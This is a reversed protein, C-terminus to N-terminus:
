QKGDVTDTGNMDSPLKIGPGVLTVNLGSLNGPGSLGGTQISASSAGSAHAPAAGRDEAGRAPSVQMVSANAIANTVAQQTTTSDTISPPIDATTATIDATTTAQDTIAYNGTDAGLYHSTLTVTKGTGANKNDFVGTASVAVADGNILGAYAAASTDVTAATTGDYAKNAAAIGSIVLAKPTVHAAATQGGALSYNSALGTGDALSLSNVTVLNATAVDKTNFTASATASVTEGGVLGSDISLSAIAATSGDYTKDSAHLTATLVAKNITSTTNDAYVVNYNGGGNGDTLTVSSTTVTKNSGANKDTFAFSGGSLADTGFLTGSTVTATGAATLGGDYTKTVDSTALTLDAKTVSVASGTTSLVNYNGSLGGNSGTGLALGTVSALTSSAQVNKNALNTTDGAGTVAFTEGTVGTATLVSGAVASSGDYTRTGSLALDAKTVSVASGTTSLVNYNGSLGGNGSTGLTLGAISALTSSAQVDKSALNGTNGAGTVAFTEGAVGTATLVSGAVASTGDYARTGSLTLNAKNITLTGTGSIDYGQQNSYLAAYTGVNTENAAFVNGPVVSVSGHATGDYTAIVDPVNLTLATLFQTLLPASHGEYIRWSAGSSGTSAITNPTATNWSSFSSLQMMQQSTLGTGGVSAAQGTTQIDWFSNTVAGYNNGMLGGANSVGQVSGTAYSNSVGGDYNFGVLGGVFSAGSVAGTAYSNSISNHYNMGVLGGVYNSGNVSGSVSGSAYSNSISGYNLGVLGGVRNEGGQVTGTAYDNSVVGENLGVLGGVTGGSATVGGAAHSGNTTGTSTNHGVLGGVYGRGQVATSAYSNTITGDNKGALAGVFDRGVVSGGVLGVNQVSGSADIHGFLGAEDASATLSVGSLGSDPMNINLAGITHGAGNLTGTFRASDKGVPVFTGSSWVNNVTGTAAADINQGLTYNGALNMSMLQLQHANNITTSYESALMPRTGGASNLTGDIGVMVWNNGTAGPTTTFNFGTFNSATQMQVSSLGTGASSTAQGSTTTDWFSNSATALGGDGGISDGGGVVGNVNKGILGGVFSSGSVAGAAYSHNIIAAGGPGGASPSGGYLFGDGGAGGVNGGVLGGVASSGSVAGSAYSNDITASSGATGDSGYSSAGGTSGTNVGVLGGVYGGGTVAGTAYSNAISASNNTGVLGGINNGSGTVAGTAYSNSINSSNNSGVLGGVNSGGTVVGTAYSNNISSSNNSGVLGGVNSGGTVVGTAYSNSVTNANNGVLGGVHDNGSVAGTSYSNAVSGVSNNGVLGGIYDTGTATGTAYSATVHGWNIGMLGGVSGVPSSVNGTAYSNNVSGGGAGWSLGVLGGAEGNGYAIVNGTAHSDTIAGGDIVGVLGGVTQFGSVSGTAYSNSLTGGLAGVLSGTGWSNSTVSGGVLGVNRVMSGVATYGFLGTTSSGTQNIYLGSVTHGLGDFSGTFKTTGTGIPVFGAGANWGSTTSADINSGLAYNLAKNGNMGQLDTATTSGAAGLNTIVTYAKVSGNSGQKTTFNTTSAPLNVAGGNSIINSTNGSAVAGQGFLLALSATSSANLNANININDQANLTLKNASWSVVDNVNVDGSTGSSGSSSLITVNTSGLNASLAAGTIDGGTAAITYDVPDILWSGTLGHAASTTIQTDAAVTVHAASTEIFGGNGGNPAGADLTGGVNVTGGQMDGLLKITGNHSEITQAQVIGTNNVVTQLLNGAAQATLLVQGGDAQILGGNQVLANVAGQDVTVNLLGDGVVDLTIANGAALAVSGLRANITGENSVNAGLLAVYGGDANITGQNLISGNGTGAFKYNGAMFDSDAINRTSAVLGGVNVSAGKGFLIGNPNVIFVKGNASLTGLISTADAGLVRNLAVSNSNPQVFRVAEGTGINFSQWNLVANQSSQNITMNSTSGTITASGAVVTGNAPLAYSHSGFALMLSVALAKLAFGAGAVVSAVTSAKKGGTKTNESVAVFTGTKENWISRYIHNM